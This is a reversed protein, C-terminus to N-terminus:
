KSRFSSTVLTVLRRPPPNTVNTVHFKQLDLHHMQFHNLFHFLFVYMLPTQFKTSYLV